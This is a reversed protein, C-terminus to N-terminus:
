IHRHNVSQNSVATDLCIGHNERDPLIDHKPHSDWRGGGDAGDRRYSAISRRIHTVENHRFLTHRVELDWGHDRYVREFHLVCGRAAGGASCASAHRASMSATMDVTINGTRVHQLGTM